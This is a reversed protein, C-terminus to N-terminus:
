WIEFHDCNVTQYMILKIPLLYKKMNLNVNSHFKGYRLLCVDWQSQNFHWTFLLHLSTMDCLINETNLTLNFMTLNLSTDRLLVGLGRNSTILQNYRAHSGIATPTHRRTFTYILQVASQIFARYLHRGNVMKGNIFAFLFLTAEEQSVYDLYKMISKMLHLVIFTFLVSMGWKLWKQFKHRVNCKFLGSHFLCFYPTKM